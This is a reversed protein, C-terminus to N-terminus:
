PSNAEQRCLLAAIPAPLGIRAPQRPNYWLWQDGEMVREEAGDCRARWPTIELEFHTFGHRILPLPLPDLEAGRLRTRCYQTAAALDVFEPPTWLGGWIGHGPRRQLLLGGDTRSALLMVIARTPRAARARPAPLLQVRGTAFAVCDSRLPCAACRPQRRTCLTAGFDMIAQTYTSVAELPTSQEARAWLTRLTQPAAPSGDIGFYRALVRKVNGDLIAERQDLALALIAAATSRGIGPLSALQGRAPPLEGGFEAVIRQAARHLNRARSYYGLGSWLHLVEDLPAAALSPLDPFRQMFRRYYGLVSAVQTQQLMIESVWVRYPTRDTQWPLDHRGETTHWHILAQALASV